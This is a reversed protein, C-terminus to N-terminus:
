GLKLNNKKILNLKKTLEEPNYRGIIEYYSKTYVIIQNKEKIFFYKIGEFKIFNYKSSSFVNKLIQKKVVEKTKNEIYFDFLINM